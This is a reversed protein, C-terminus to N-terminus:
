KTRKKRLTSLQQQPPQEITRFDSLRGPSPNHNPIATPSDSKKPSDFRKVISVCDNNTHNNM